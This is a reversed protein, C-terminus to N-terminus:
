WCLGDVFSIHNCVLLAPGHLPVNEPGVIRIRYLTHTLFWLCFRVLFDPLLYLACGTAILTLFGAVLIIRDAPLQLYERLLWLTASALLV